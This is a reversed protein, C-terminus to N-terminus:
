RRSSPRYSATSSPLPSTTDNMANHALCTTVSSTSTRRPGHHASGCPSALTDTALRFRFSASAGLRSGVFLFRIDPRRPPTLPCRVAFGSRVRVCVCTFGATARRLLGMKGQSTERKAFAVKAGDNAVARSSAPSTLRPRLLEDTRRLTEGPLFGCRALVVFPRVSHALSCDSDVRHAHLSRLAPRVLRRRESPCPRPKTVGDRPLRRPRTRSRGDDAHRASHHRPTEHPLNWDQTGHSQHCETQM